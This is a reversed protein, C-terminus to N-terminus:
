VCKGRWTKNSKIYSINSQTVGFSDGIQRQYVGPVSLWLRILSIQSETLKAFNCKIGSRNILGAKHAHQMNDFHTSWELNEVRNDTKDGNM